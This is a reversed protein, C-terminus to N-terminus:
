KTGIAPASRETKPTQALSHDGASPETTASPKPQPACLSTSTSRRGGSRISGGTSSSSASISNTSRQGGATLRRVARQGPRAAPLRLRAPRRGGGRGAGVGVLVPRRQAAPAGAAA